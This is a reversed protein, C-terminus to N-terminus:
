LPAFRRCNAMFDNVYSLVRRYLCSVLPRPIATIFAIGIGFLAIGFM